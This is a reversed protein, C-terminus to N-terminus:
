IAWTLATESFDMKSLRNDLDVMCVLKGNVLTHIRGVRKYIIARFQASHFNMETLQLLKGHIWVMIYNPRTKYKLIPDNLPRPNHHDFDIGVWDGHTFSDLAFLLESEASTFDLVLTDITIGRDTSWVQRSAEEMGNMPGHDLFRMLSAYISTYCGYSGGCGGQQRKEYPVMNGFLRVDVYVKSVRITLQSIAPWTYFMDRENLISIDLKVTEDKMRALAANTEISIQQNNIAPLSKKFLMAALFGM